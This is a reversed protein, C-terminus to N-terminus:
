KRPQNAINSLWPLASLAFTGELVELGGPSFRLPREGARTATPVWPSTSDDVREAEISLHKRVKEVTWSVAREKESCVAEETAM